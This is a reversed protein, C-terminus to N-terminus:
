YASFENPLSCLHKNARDKSMSIVRINKKRLGFKKCRTMLSDNSQMLHRGVDGTYIYKNM